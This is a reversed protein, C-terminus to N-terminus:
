TYAEFHQESVAALQLCALFGLMFPGYSGGLSVKHGTLLAIVLPPTDLFM